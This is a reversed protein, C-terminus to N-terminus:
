EKRIVVFETRRNLQHQNESCQVGNTCKNLIQSEGYGKGSIREKSIGKSIIYDITNQARRESLWMNHKDNSRADTHSGCEIVIDPFKNMVEVVKTLEVEADKRIKSSNLDFYIPNIKIVVKEEVAEFDEKFLNMEINHNKNNENTSELKVDAKGYGIKNAILQYKKNCEIDFTFSADEKVITTQLEKGNEDYMVVTAGSISRKNASDVIKGQIKQNCVVTPTNINFSYIDDDGKGGERNSSFYGKSNDSEIVFAFDDFPSNIPAELATPEVNNKHDLNIQYIDLNGLNKRGDSSFYLTNDHSIFPFKEHGPTNIKPGLNVPVGYSGDDNIEIYYIDTKGYGGPMDSSFYLRKEVPSLTPHGCSYNKNNYSFSKLEGWKGDEQLTAIFIALNVNHKDDKIKEKNYYNDRTFYM